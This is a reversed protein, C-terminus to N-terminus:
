VSLIMHGFFNLVDHALFVAKCINTVFGHVKGSFLSARIIQKWKKHFREGCHTCHILPGHIGMTNEPMYCSCFVPIYITALRM